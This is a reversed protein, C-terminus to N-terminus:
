RAESVRRLPAPDVRTTAHKTQKSLTQAIRAYGVERGSFPLSSLFGAGEMTLLALICAEALLEDFSTDVLLRFVRDVVVIIFISLFHLSSAFAGISQNRYLYM